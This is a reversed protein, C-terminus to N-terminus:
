EPRCASVWVRLADAEPLGGAPFARVCVDVFGAEALLQAVETPEYAREVHVETFALDGRECYAHVTALRTDEDFHHEWHYYVEGAYGEANGLEWLDRLGASTNIDFVFLGGPRLAQWVNKATCVFDQPDTLNNLSDFMSVALDVPKTLHFDRFDAEIFTIPPLKSRAIALMEPSRDLGIVEYGLSFFPISSNGTGCGLDLIREGQWARAAAHQLVFAGWAEYDIDHMIADYVHAILSFPATM